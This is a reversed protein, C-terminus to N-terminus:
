NLTAGNDPAHSRQATFRFITTRLLTVNRVCCRLVVELMCEHSLLAQDDVGLFGDAIPAQRPLM